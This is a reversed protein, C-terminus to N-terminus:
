AQRRRALTAIHAVASRALSRLSYGGELISVLKGGCCAEAVRMIERTIYSYDYEALKLLSQEDERHADFGTSMIILGPKFAALAPVWDDALLRAYDEGGAGDPLPANHINAHRAEPLGYPYGSAQYANFLAIREDGAVIAETGDARHADVDVIAVRKVGMVELAYRAACAANNILCFGGASAPGAHHGPPRACVFANRIKSECVARVAAIAAGASQMAAEFSQGSIQTDASAQAAPQRRAAELGDIYSAEHCRLVDSRRAPASPLRKVFRSLGSALMRDEIAEIREPAEPNGEGQRYDSSLAHTFFGTQMWLFRFFGRM